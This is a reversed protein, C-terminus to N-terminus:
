NKSSITYTIQTWYFYISSCFFTCWLLHVTHPSNHWIGLFPISIISPTPHYYYKQLQEPMTNNADVTAYRVTWLSIVFFFTCLMHLTYTQALLNYRFYLLSNSFCTTVVQSTKNKLKNNSNNSKNKHLNKNHVFDCFHSGSAHNTLHLTINLHTIEQCHSFLSIRPTEEQLFFTKSFCQYDTGNEQPLWMSCMATWLM